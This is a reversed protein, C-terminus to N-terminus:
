ATNGRGLARLLALVILGRETHITFARNHVFLLALHGVGKGGQDTLAGVDEIRVTGPSLQDGQDFAFDAFLDGGILARDLLVPEGERLTLAQFRDEEPRFLIKQPLCGRLPPEADRVFIPFLDDAIQDPFDPLGLPFPCCCHHSSM